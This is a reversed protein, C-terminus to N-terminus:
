TAKDCLVTEDYVGFHVRYLDERVKQAINAYIKNFRCCERQDARSCEFDPSTCRSITIPGEVTEVVEGLSIEKAEKALEYGGQTGKYSRVIGTAVLKRLIKLAFRLTVGTAASLSKADMRVKNRALCDVIRVAYDAELTIHM